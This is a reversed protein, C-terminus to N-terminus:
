QSLFDAGLVWIGRSLDYRMGLIRRLVWRLSYPPCLLHTSISRPILLLLVHSPALPSRSPFHLVQERTLHISWISYPIKSFRRACVIRHRRRFPSFRVTIPISKALLDKRIDLREAPFYVSSISLHLQIIM